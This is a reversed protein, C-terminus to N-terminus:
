TLDFQISAVNIDSTFELGTEDTKVTVVKNSSDTYHPTDQLSFTLYIDIYRSMGNVTHKQLNDTYYYM